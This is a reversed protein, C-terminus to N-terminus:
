APPDPRQHGEPLPAPGAPHTEDRAGHRLDHLLGARHLRWRPTAALVQWACPLGNVRFAGDGCRTPIPPEAIRQRASPLPLIIETDFRLGGSNRAFAARRLAATAYLRRPTRCPPLM